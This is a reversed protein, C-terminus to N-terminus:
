RRGPPRGRPGCRRTAGAPARSCTTPARRWSAAPTSCSSATPPRPRPSATRSSSRRAARSRAAAAGGRARPRREVGAEATAEDLIAIPAGCLVLRALALQQAQTATLRHGGEGVATGLGDPLRAGLRARRRARPRGALEADTAAPRALRLDDALTGAFVHVEQTVLAVERRTAAPGLEALPPAASASRARPRRSSARSSSPSRRRAPAASASWRSPEGPAITLDVGRLVDHGERLRPARGRGRGGARRRAAHRTAGAGRAAPLGAVGVLRALSAAASQADDVLALLLM